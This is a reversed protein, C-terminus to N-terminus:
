SKIVIEVYDGPKIGLRYREKPPIIKILENNIFVSIGKVLEGNVFVKIDSLKAVAYSNNLIVVNTILGSNHLTKVFEDIVEQRTMLLVHGDHQIGGEIFGVYQKKFTIYFSSLVNKILGLPKVLLCGNDMVETVYGKVPGLSRPVNFTHERLRCLENIKSILYNGLKLGLSGRAKIFEPRSRVEIHIHNETWWCFTPSRVPVGLVDGVDVEHGMDVHPDLHLVRIYYGDSKFGVIYEGFLKKFFVLKGHFPSLVVDGKPYIDIAVLERHSYYPSNIFSFYYDERVKISLAGARCVEIFL